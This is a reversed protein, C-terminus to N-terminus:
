ATVQKWIGCCANSQWSRQWLLVKGGSLLDTHIIIYTNCKLQKLEQRRKGAVQRMVCNSLKVYRSMLLFSSSKWLLLCTFGGSCWGRGRHEQKLPSCQIFRVNPPARPHLKHVGRLVFTLQVYMPMDTYSISCNKYCNCSVGVIYLTGVCKFVWTLFIWYWKEENKSIIVDRFEIECM